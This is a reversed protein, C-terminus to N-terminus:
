LCSKIWCSRPKDAGGRAAATQNQTTHLLRELRWCATEPSQVLVLGHTKLSAAGCGGDIDVSGDGERKPFHERWNPPYGTDVLDVAQVITIRNNEEKVILFM